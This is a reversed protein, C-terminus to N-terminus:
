TLLFSLCFFFFTHSPNQHDLFTRNQIPESEKIKAGALHFTYYYELTNKKQRLQHRFILFFIIINFSSRFLYKDTTKYRTSTRVMTTLAARTACVFNILFIPKMVVLCCYCCGFHFLFVFFSTSIFLWEFRSVFYFSVFLCLYDYGENTTLFINCPKLIVIKIAISIKLHKVYVCFQSSFPCMLRTFITDYFVISICLLYIFFLVFCFFSRSPTSAFPVFYFLILSRVSSMHAFLASFNDIHVSYACHKVPRGYARACQGFRPFHSKYSIHTSLFVVM